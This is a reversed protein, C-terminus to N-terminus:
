RSSTAAAKSTSDTTVYYNVKDGYNSTDTLYGDTDCAGATVVSDMGAPLYGSADDANNGASVVIQSKKAVDSIVTQLIASDAKVKTNASINILDAQEAKALKLAMLVSSLYGNGDKDFAKISYLYSSDQSLNSIIQVMETGHGNRDEGTEKKNKDASEDILWSQKKVLSEPAGSDIVAVIKKGDADAQEFLYKSDSKGAQSSSSVSETGSATGTVTEADQAQSVSDTGSASSSAASSDGSVTDSRTPNQTDSVDPESVSDAPDATFATEDSLVMAQDYEVADVDELSELKTKYGEATKVSDYQAVVLGDYDVYSDTGLKKGDWDGSKVSVILRSTKGDEEKEAPLAAFALAAKEAAEVTKEEETQEATVTSESQFATDAMVSNPVMGILMGASLVLSLVKKRM